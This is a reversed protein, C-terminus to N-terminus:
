AAPGMIRFMENQLRRAHKRADFDREARKRAAVGHRRRLQPDSIYNLCAEALAEIDPPRGHALRGEIGDDVMEGIGGVAFAVVPKSLSMSEMVARPLPDEYVSPVVSVDFDVVYPRVDPRFGIFQVCNALHLERVLSRCEELHDLRM